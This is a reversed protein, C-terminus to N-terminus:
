HVCTSHDLELVKRTVEDSLLIPKGKSGIRVYLSQIDTLCIKKRVTIKYIIEKLDGMLLIDSTMKDMSFSGDTVSLEGFSMVKVNGLEDTLYGTFKLKKMTSNTLSRSQCYNDSSSMWLQQAAVQADLSINKAIGHNDIPIVTIVTGTKMDQIAMFCIRDYDSYFLRHMRHSREEIGIDITLNKELIEALELKPMSLRKFIRDLSHGSFVAKM